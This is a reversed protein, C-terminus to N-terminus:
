VRHPGPPHELHGLPRAGRGRGGHQLDIMALSATGEPIGEWDLPPSVDPDNGSIETCPTSRPSEGPRTSSPAPSYSARGRSAATRGTHFGRPAPSAADQADDSAAPPPAEGAGGDDGGSSCGAAALAALAVIGALAALLRAGSM